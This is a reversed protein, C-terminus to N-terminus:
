KNRIDLQTNESSMQSGEAEEADQISTYRWHM